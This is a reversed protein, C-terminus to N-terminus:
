VMVSSRPFVWSWENSGARPAMDEFPAVSAIMDEITRRSNMLELFVYAGEKLLAKVIFHQTDHGSQADGCIERGYYVWVLNRLDHDMKFRPDDGFFRGMTYLYFLFLSTRLTEEDVYFSVGTEGDSNLITVRQIGVDELQSLGFYEIIKKSNGEIDGPIFKPSTFM